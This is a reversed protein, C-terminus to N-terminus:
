AAVESNDDVPLGLQKSVQEYLGGPDFKAMFADAGLKEVAEANFVGSLSTHLVIKLKSLQAHARIQKCLTYGDLRPMEVDSIVLQLQEEMPVDSSEAMAILAEYAELGDNCVILEAGLPEVVRVIQKRAIRSDDVILIKMKEGPHDGHLEAVKEDAFELSEDKGIVEALVKEVDLIQILEDDFDTVATLYTEFASGLPPPMVDGWNKNIIRDVSKVFFGQVMMNYETLIVHGEGPERSCPMGMALELDIIVITEGRLHAIGIVAPHNSPIRTIKPLSQVVERVKFVNIGFRREGHLRFLLLEMRNEGVMQTRQDVEAMVKSM